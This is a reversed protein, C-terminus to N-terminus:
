FVGERLPFLLSRLTLTLEHHDAEERHEYLYGLTYLVATKSLGSKFFEEKTSCRSIDTCLRVATNLLTEILGDDDENDIRLYNRAEEVTVM